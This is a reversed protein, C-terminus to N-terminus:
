KGMKMRCVEQYHHRSPDMPANCVEQQCWECIVTDPEIFEVDEADWTITQLMEGSPTDRYGTYGKRICGCHDRRPSGSDYGFAVVEGTHKNRM